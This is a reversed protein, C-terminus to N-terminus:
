IDLREADYTRTSASRTRNFTEPFGAVPKGAWWVYPNERGIVHKNFLREAVRAMRKRVTDRHRRCAADDAGDPPPEIVQEYRQQWQGWKIVSTGLPLQLSSPAQTGVEGIADWLSRFLTREIDTLRLGQSAREDLIKAKEGVDVVVCSTVARGDHEGLEVPLLEFRFRIGDEDDKQKDLTVTRIKTEEDRVVLIVQDINAYISTHGRLKKGDANMHHVLCVHAGTERNIRDVNAMVTGMDKGSNEDAVGQATALTDIVVLRLPVDHEATIGRIEEILKETDGESAYLDVRSQLLEFPVDEGACEFHKRYARLRKKVGRAGEGAQYIVLGKKVPRGFFDVGRAVSLSAHIALFSKGSKSPGGIVSKDGSTLFDDILYEHEPGPLDLDRWRLRGFRSRFPKIIPLAAAEFEEFPQIVPPKIM